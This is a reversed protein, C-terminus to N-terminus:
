RRTAELAENQRREKTKPLWSKSLIKKWSKKLTNSSSSSKPPLFASSSALNSFSSSTSSSVYSNRSSINYRNIHLLSTLSFTRKPMKSKGQSNVTKWPVELPTKNSEFGLSPMFGDKQELKKFTLLQPLSAHEVNAEKELLIMSESRRPM